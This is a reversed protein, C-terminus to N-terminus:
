WLWYVLGGPVVVGRLSGSGRVRLRVLGMGRMLFM